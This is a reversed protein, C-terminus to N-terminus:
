SLCKLSTFTLTKIKRHDLVDHGKTRYMKYLELADLCFFFYQNGYCKKEALISTSTASSQLRPRLHFVIINTLWLMLKKRSYFVPQHPLPSWVLSPIINFKPPGTRSLKLFQMIKRWNVEPFFRPFSFQLVALWSSQLVIGNTIIQM